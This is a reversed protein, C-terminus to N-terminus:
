ARKEAGSPPTDFIQLSFRIQQYTCTKRMDGILYGRNRRPAIRLESLLAIGNFALLRAARRVDYGNSTSFEVRESVGNEIEAM